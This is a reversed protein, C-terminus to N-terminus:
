ILTQRDRRGETGGDTRGETWGDRGGETVHKELIASSSIVKFGYPVLVLELENMEENMRKNMRENM